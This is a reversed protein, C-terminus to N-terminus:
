CLVTNNPVCSIGATFDAGDLLGGKPRSLINSAISRDAVSFRRRVLVDKFDVRHSGRDNEANKIHTQLPVAKPFDGPRQVLLAYGRGAAEVVHRLAPRVQPALRRVPVIHRDLGNQPILDVEAVHYLVLGAGNGILDVLLHALRFLVPDLHLMGMLRQDRLLDPIGNLPQVIMGGLPAGATIPHDRQEGTNEVTCVKAARHAILSIVAASLAVGIPM